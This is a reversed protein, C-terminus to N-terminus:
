AAFVPTSPGERSPIMAADCSKADKWEGAKEDRDLCEGYSECNDIREQADSVLMNGVPVQREEDAMGEPKRIGFKFSCTKATCVEGARDEL